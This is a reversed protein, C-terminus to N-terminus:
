RSSTNKVPAPAFISLDISDAMAKYGSDNPHLHDGADFDSRIRTPDNPDRAVADFDVVADFTGSTRIWRNVSQRFGEATDSFYEGGGYPTLTCGIVKIGHTHAREAMQRLGAIVDDASPLVEIPPAGPRTGNRIDNIGELLTVWKVGAQALVDRDFRALASVGQADRLVRNGAIGEDIIALNATGPNSLLRQALFSPWNHNTDPTSRAGDTISDGFAVIAATNAPAMVDVGTLWYWSQSTAADPITLQATLDGQKSVYTTHLGLNHVTPPGTEGPLYLSIALDGLQPVDLDVPDSLMLAGPPILCSQKGNFSLPRDSAPAIAADKNRIAIHAAGVALPASSYANSLQIRVRRGGISTHVIMRVTQNSFGNRFQAGPPPAPAPQATLQVAVSIQAAPNAAPVSGGQFNPIAQAAPQPRPAQQPSAAWTAVWHEQAFAVVAFVFCLALQCGRLIPHKM